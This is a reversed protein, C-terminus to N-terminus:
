KTHTLVSVIQPGTNEAQLFQLSLFNLFLLGRRLLRDGAALQM